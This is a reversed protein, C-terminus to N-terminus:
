PCSSAQMRPLAPHRGLCAAVQVQTTQGTKGNPAGSAFPTKPLKQRQHRGRQAASSRQRCPRQRIREVVALVRKVASTRAALDVMSARLVVQFLSAGSWWGSLEVEDATFSSRHDPSGHDRFRQRGHSM